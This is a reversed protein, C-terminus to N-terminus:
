RNRRDNRHGNRDSVHIIPMCGCTHEAASGNHKAEQRSFKRENSDNTDSEWGNEDVENSQWNILKLSISKQPSKAHVEKKSQVRGNVAVNTLAKHKGIAHAFGFSSCDLM